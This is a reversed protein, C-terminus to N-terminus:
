YVTGLGPPAVLIYGWARAQPLSRLFVLRRAAFSRRGTHASRKRPSIFWIPFLFHWGTFVSEKEIIWSVKREM